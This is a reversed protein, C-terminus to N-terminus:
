WNQMFVPNRTGSNKSITEYVLDYDGIHYNKIKIFM